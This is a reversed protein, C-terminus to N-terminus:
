QPEGTVPMAAFPHKDDYLWVHSMLPSRTAIEDGTKCQGDDAPYQIHLLTSCVFGDLYTHYHWAMLPAGPPEPASLEMTEPVFMVGVTLGGAVVLFEPRQPDFLVGDTLYDPHYWHAVDYEMQLYGAERVASEHNLGQDVIAAIVERRFTDAAAQSEETLEVSSELEVMTDHSAHGGSASHGDHDSHGAHEDPEFTATTTEVWQSNPAEVPLAFSCAALGMGSLWVGCFLLLRARM